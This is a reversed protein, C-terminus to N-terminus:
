FKMGNRVVAVNGRRPFFFTGQPNLTAMALAESSLWDKPLFFHRTVNHDNAHMDWTCVWYDHNIFVIKDRYTGMLRVVQSAFHEVCDLSHSGPQRPRYDTTSLFYLRLGQSMPVGGCENDSLYVILQGDSTLASWRIGEGNKKDEVTITRDLPNSAKSPDEQSELTQWEFFQVNQDDLSILVQGKSPHQLWRRGLRSDWDKYCAIQKTELNWVQDTSRTSILLLKEDDSTLIQSVTEQVRTDFAAFIRFKNQGQYQLRKCFIRGANDGSVLFKNTSSWHLIIISTTPDHKSVTCIKDGTKVDYLRATGDDKGACFFKDAFGYTVSTVQNKSGADSSIVPDTILSSDTVSSREEDQDDIRILADPEVVSCKYGATKYFRQGDPSFNITRVFENRNELKYILNLRPFSWVSVNGASDSTLMLEGDRSIAMERAEVHDFIKQEEDFLHWELVKMSACLALLSTSDQQWIIREVAFLDTNTGFQRCETPQRQNDTLDFVLPLKGRWVLVVKSLDPSFSMSKPGLYVEDRVQPPKFHWTLKATRVNYCKVSCDDEGVLLEEESEGFSLAMPVILVQNPMEYVVECTSIDWIKLWKAGATAVLTDSKNLTSRRVFERHHVTKLLACTDASFISMAGEVGSSITIFHSSTALVQTITKAHTAAVSALCDDWHETVMGSISLSGEQDNCYTRGIMTKRPCFPPVLKFIASPTQLLNPGFKAAIRTFDEAWEHLEQAFGDVSDLLSLPANSRDQAIKRKAFAKLFRASRTLYRLNKSLSIARIWSLCYLKLFQSLVKLLKASDTAAKSLHYTWYCTSYGLFHHEKEAIFLLNAKSNPRESLHLNEVNQFVRRWSDSSLHKLCVIAAHEHGGKEDIFASFSPRQHLLFQRATEHILSIKGDDITIFFGCIQLVTERLNVFGSFDPQLALQLETLKLPRGSLAAWTLITRAMTQQRDPKSMILSLMREYMPTMGEPIETLSDRIDDFTHWNSELTELALRVWLFSGQAKSMIQNVLGERILDDDPLFEQLSKHVFLRVDCATHREIMPLTIVSFKSAPAFPLKMPRSSLFVRLNFQPSAKSLNNVLASPIDAEDIGDLLWCLPKSLKMKFLIGEILKDWIVSFTQDQLNFSLGTEEHLQFLKSRFEENSLALQGILSRLCYALTRKNQHDASFFHFHCEIGLQQLAKAVYSSLITKGAAPLGVLHFVSIQEKYENGGSLWKEFEPTEFLWSCTGDLSRRLNGNLEEVAAECIGTIIQIRKSADFSSRRRDQSTIVPRHPALDRAWLKIMNRVSIYNNDERDRYKCITHHDADLADSIEQTYGLVGSSKEM